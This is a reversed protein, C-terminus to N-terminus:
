KYEGNQVTYITGDSKDYYKGNNPANDSFTGEYYSGDSNFTLKGRATSMLRIPAKLLTQAMPLITLPRATACATLMSEKMLEKRIFGQVKATQHEM